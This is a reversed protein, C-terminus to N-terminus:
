SAPPTPPPPWSGEQQSLAQSQSAQLVAERKQRSRSKWYRILSVPGSSLLLALPVRALLILRFTDMNPFPPTVFTNAFAWGNYLVIPVLGWWFTYKRTTGSLPAPLLFQGLTAAVIVIPTTSSAVPMGQPNPLHIRAASSGSGIIYLLGAANGGILGILWARNAWGQAAGHQQMAKGLTKRTRIVAKMENKICAFWEEQGIHLELTRREIFVSVGSFAAGRIQGASHARGFGARQALRFLGSARCGWVGCSVALSPECAPLCANHGANDPLLLESEANTKVHTNAKWSSKEPPEGENGARQLSPVFQETTPLPKCRQPFASAV